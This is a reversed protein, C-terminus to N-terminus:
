QKFLIFSGLAIIVSISTTLLYWIIRNYEFKAKLAMIDEQAHIVNGNTKDQRAHVGKFGEAMTSNLTDLGHTLAEIDKAQLANEVVQSDKRRM